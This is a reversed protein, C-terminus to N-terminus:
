SSDRTESIQKPELDSYSQLPPLWELRERVSAGFSCVVTQHAQGYLAQPASYLFKAPCTACHM